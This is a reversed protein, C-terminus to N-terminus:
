ELSFSRLVSAIEDMEKRESSKVEQEHREREREEYKDLIKKQKEKELLKKQEEDAKLQLKGLENRKERMQQKLGDRYAISAHVMQETFKGKLALHHMRNVEAREMQRLEEIHQKMNAVEKMILALVKAQQEMEIKRVKSVSQFRFKFKSM